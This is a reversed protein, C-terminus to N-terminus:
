KIKSLKISILITGEVLDRKATTNAEEFNLARITYQQRGLRDEVVVIYKETNAIISM